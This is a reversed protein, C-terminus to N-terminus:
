GRGQHRHSGVSPFGWRGGRRVRAAIEGWMGMILLLPPGEGRVEIRTPAGNVMLRAARGFTNCHGGAM